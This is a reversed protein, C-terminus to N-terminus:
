SMLCAYVHRPWDGIHPPQMCPARANEFKTFCPVDKQLPQGLLTKRAFIYIVNNTASIVVHRVTIMKGYRSLALCVHSVTDQRKMRNPLTQIFFQVSKTIVNIM